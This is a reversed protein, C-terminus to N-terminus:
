FLSDQSAISGILNRTHADVNAFRDPVSLDSLQDHPRAKDELADEVQKIIKVHEQNRNGAAVAFMANNYKSIDADSGLIEGIQTM